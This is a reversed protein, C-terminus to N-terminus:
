TRIRHLKDFFDKTTTIRSTEDKTKTNLVSNGMYNLEYYMDAAVYMIEFETNMEQEFKNREETEKIKLSLKENVAEIKGCFVNIRSICTDLAERCINRTLAIM